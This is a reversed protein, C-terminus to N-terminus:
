DYCNIAVVDYIPNEMTSISPSSSFMWGNFVQKYDETGPEREFIDLLIKNESLEYPSSQWCANVKIKIYGWIKESGVKIDLYASKATIKNLIQVKANSKNHRFSEEDDNAMEHEINDNEPEESDIAYVLQFSLLCLVLLLRVM